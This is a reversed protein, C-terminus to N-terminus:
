QDGKRRKGLGVDEGSENAVLRLGAIKILPPQSPFVMNGIKSM